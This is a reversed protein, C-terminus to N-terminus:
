WGFLLKWNESPSIVFCNQPARLWMWRTRYNERHLPGPWLQRTQWAAVLQLNRQLGEGGMHFGSPIFKREVLGQLKTNTGEALWAAHLPLKWRLVLALHLELAINVVPTFGCEWATVSKGVSGGIMFHTSRAWIKHVNKACISKWIFLFSSM